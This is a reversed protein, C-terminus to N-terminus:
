IVFKELITSIQSRVGIERGMVCRSARVLKEVHAATAHHALELLETENAGDAIRTLARMKSFSLQGSAFAM